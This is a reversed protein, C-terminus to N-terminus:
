LLKSMGCRKSGDKGHPSNILQDSSIPLRCQPCLAPLTWTSNPDSFWQMCSLGNSLMGFNVKKQIAVKAALGITMHMGVACCKEACILM